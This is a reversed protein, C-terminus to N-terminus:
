KRYTSSAMERLELTVQVDNVGLSEAFCQQMAAYLADAMRVRLEQARGELISCTCHAFGPAAGEGMVWNSRLSHYAKVSPATITEFECLVRVLESLIDPIQSNEPLDATTELHLHPM